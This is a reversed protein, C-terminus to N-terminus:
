AGDGDGGRSRMAPAPTATPAPAPAAAPAPPKAHPASPESLSESAPDPLLMQDIFRDVQPNVSYTPLVPARPHSSVRFRDGAPPGYHPPSMRSLDPFSPDYVGQPNQQLSYFMRRSSRTRYPSQLTPEYPAEFPAEYPPDFIPDYPNEYPTASVRPHRDSHFSHRSELPLPYYSASQPLKRFIPPRIM